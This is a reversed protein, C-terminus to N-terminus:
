GTTTPGILHVFDITAALSEKEKAEISFPEVAKKLIKKAFLISDKKNALTALVWLKRVQFLFSQHFYKMNEYNESFIWGTWLYSSRKIIIVFSDEM